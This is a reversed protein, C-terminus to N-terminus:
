FAEGSKRTLREWCSEIFSDENKRLFAAGQTSYYFLDTGPDTHMRPSAVEHGIPVVLRRILTEGQGGGFIEDM